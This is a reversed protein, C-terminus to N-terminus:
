KSIFRILEQNLAEKEDKSLDRTKLNYLIDFDTYSLQTPEGLLFDSTVNYFKSLRHLMKNNPFMGTEEIIEYAEDTCKCSQSIESIETGTVARLRKLRNSIQRLNRDKEWNILRQIEIYLKRNGIVVLLLNNKVRTIAQFLASTTKFPFHDQTYFILENDQYYTRSDIPIIVNDFERGIVSFVDLSGEYIKSNQIEAGSEPMHQPVEISVYDEVTELEKMFEIAAEEDPFYVTNVKPFEIPNLGTQGKNFFKLIFTSLSTDTRVRSTLTYKKKDVIRKELLGEVDLSDEQPKLTQVKDVAFILTSKKEFLQNFESESLRQSEDILIYDYEAPKMDNLNCNIIDTFTFDVVRNIEEYNDLASCFILLVRKGSGSLTKALEFLVLSKGTGAGGKIMCHEHVDSDLEAMQEDVIKRQESNLFFKSNIFKQIDSYPSIVIDDPKLELLLDKEIYDCPICSVLKEFTSEVLKGEVFEYLTDESSVYTFLSVSRIGPICSLLYHHRVLQDLIDTLSKPQSKLEINLISENSFRLIDFQERSGIEVMKDFCYGFLQGPDTSMEIIKDAVCKVDAFEHAKMGLINNVKKYANFIDANDGYASIYTRLNHFSKKM